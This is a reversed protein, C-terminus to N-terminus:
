QFSEVCEGKQKEQYRADLDSQMCLANQDSIKPKCDWSM